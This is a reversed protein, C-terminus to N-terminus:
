SLVILDVLLPPPSLCFFTDAAAAAAVVVVVVPMGECINCATPIVILQKGQGPGPM